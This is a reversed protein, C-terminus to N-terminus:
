EAQKVTANKIAVKIGSKDILEIPLGSAGLIMKYNYKETSGSIFFEDNQKAVEREQLRIDSFANYLFDVIIGQPLEYLTTNYALGNYDVKIKSDSLKINMGKISQPQIATMDFSGDKTINVEYESLFGVYEIEATFSLGTTVATVDSSIKNCGCFLVFVLLLSFVVIKKM